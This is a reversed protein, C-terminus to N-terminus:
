IGFRKIGGPKFRIKIYLESLHFRFKCYSDSFSKGKLWKVLIVYYHDTSSAGYAVEKYGNQKTKQRVTFNHEATEAQLVEAGIDTIFEDRLINMDEQIGLGQFKPLIASLMSHAVLRTKNYWAKGYFVSVSTTGVLQNGSFAVFCKGKEGVIKKLEAGPLMATRMVMGKAINKKHAALILEHIDDWSVWEPKEMVKIEDM